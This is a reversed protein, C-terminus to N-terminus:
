KKRKIKRDIKKIEKEFIYKWKRYEDESFYKKNEIDETYLMFQKDGENYKKELGGLLGLFLKNEIFNISYNNNEKIDPDNVTNVFIGIDNTVDTSIGINYIKNGDETNNPNKFTDFINKAIYKQNNTAYYEMANGFLSFSINKWKEYFNSKIFGNKTLYIELINNEKMDIITHDKKPMGKENYKKILNCGNSVIVKFLPIPIETNFNPDLLETLPLTIYKEKEIKNKLHIKTPKSITARHYTLEWKSNKDFKLNKYNSFLKMYKIEYNSNMFCIKLDCNDIDKSGQVIRLIDYGNKIIAVKNKM